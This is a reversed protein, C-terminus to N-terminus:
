LLKEKLFTQYDEQYKDSLWLDGGAVEFDPEEEMGNNLFGFPTLEEEIQVIQQNYLAKRNNANMLDKFMMDNSAWGFLVLTMTLDDHYGEDAEFSGRAEVFTSIESIVDPDFILLKEEEVLSKFTSCGIRKIQLSSLHYYTIVLM